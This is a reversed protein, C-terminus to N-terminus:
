RVYKQASLIKFNPPLDTSLSCLSYYKEPLSLQTIPKCSTNKRMWYITGPVTRGAESVSAECKSRVKDKTASKRVLNNSLGM